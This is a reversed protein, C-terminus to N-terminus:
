RPVVSGTLFVGHLDLNDVSLAKAFSTLSRSAGTARRADMLPTLTAPRAGQPQIHGPM